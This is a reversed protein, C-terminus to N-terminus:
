TRQQGCRRQSDECLHAYRCKTDHVSTDQKCTAMDQTGRWKMAEKKVKLHRLIRSGVPLVAM